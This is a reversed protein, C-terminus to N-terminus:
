GDISRGATELTREWTYLSRALTRSNTSIARWASESGLLRIIGEVWDTANEAIVLHTDHKVQLGEAGISTTIVPIGRYMANIVKVKIGGGFRLPAVFLQCTDYLPTLDEVRGLAEVGPYKTALRSIRKEPDDGVISFRANPIREILTPWVERLFWELGDANPEWTLTGVFLIHPKSPHFDPDPLSLLTDDGLHMTEFFRDEPVGLRKLADIDNPAALVRTSESVIRQEYSKIRLSEMYAVLRRPLSSEVSAYRRWILFEANHEHLIVRGKFWKPM